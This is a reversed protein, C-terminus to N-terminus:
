VLRSSPINHICGMRMSFNNLPTVRARVDAKPLPIRSILSQECEGQLIREM